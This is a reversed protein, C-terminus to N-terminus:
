YGMLDSYFGTLNGSPLEKKKVWGSVGKPMSKVLRMSVIRFRRPLFVAVTFARENLALHRTLFSSKNLNIDVLIINFFRHHLLQPTNCVCIYIYIYIYIYM